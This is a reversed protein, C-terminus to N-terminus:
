ISKEYNDILHKQDKSLDSYKPITIKINIFHNGRTKGRTNLDPIGKNRLRMTTEPQTGAPIKIKKPGDVTEITTECGKIAEIFSINVDSFLDSGERNFRGDKKVRIRIYLDGPIADKTPIQGHGQVKLHMDNDVGAPIDISTKNKKSVVKRGKCVKCPTKVIEGSGNCRSCTVVQQMLGLLSRTTRTEQGSGNCTTCKQVNKGGKGDCTGCPEYRSYEIEKKVGFVAEMFDISVTTEIDEGHVQRRRRGGSQRGGFGGMGGMGGFFMDMIDSFSSFGGGSFGGEGFDLGNFGFRDYKARKDGDSLVMYAENIEKFKEQAEPAKNKDPHWKMALKRFARKIDADSASKDIGLVEYYDRKNKNSSM